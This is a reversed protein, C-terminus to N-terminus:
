GARRVARSLPPGMSKRLMIAWASCMPSSHWLRLLAPVDSKSRAIAGASMSATVTGFSHTDSWEGTGASNVARARWYYVADNSLGSVNVNLAALGTFSEVSNRNQSVLHEVYLERNAPTSVPALGDAVATIHFLQTTDYAADTREIVIIFYFDACNDPIPGVNGIPQATPGFPLSARVLTTVGDQVSIYPNIPADPVFTVIVNTAVTDGINCVRAGIEFTNPGVNVNNSDLGIVNWTIPQIDLVAAARAAPLPGMLFLGLITTAVLAVIWLRRTLKMNEEKM